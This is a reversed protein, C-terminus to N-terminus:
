LQTPKTRKDANNPQIGSRSPRRLTAANSSQPAGPAASGWEIPDPSTLRSYGCTLRTALSNCYRQRLRQRCRQRKNWASVAAVVDGGDQHPTESIVLSMATLFALANDYGDSKEHALPPSSSLRDRRLFVICG